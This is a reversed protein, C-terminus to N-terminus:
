LDVRQGRKKDDEEVVIIVPKERAAAEEEAMQEKLAERLSKAKFFAVDIYIAISRLL